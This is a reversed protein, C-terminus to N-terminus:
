NVKAESDDSAPLEESAKPDPLEDKMTDHGHFDFPKLFPLEKERDLVWSKHSPYDRIEERMKTFAKDLEEISRIIEVADDIKLLEPISQFDTDNKTNVQSSGLHQIM